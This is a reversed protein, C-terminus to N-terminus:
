RAQGAGRGADRTRTDAAPSKRRRARRECRLVGGKEGRAWAMLSRLLAEVDIRDTKTRRRRRNVAISAADVV